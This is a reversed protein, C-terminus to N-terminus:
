LGDLCNFRTKILFNILLSQFQLRIEHQVCYWYNEVWCCTVAFNTVKSLLQLNAAQRRCSMWCSVPQM